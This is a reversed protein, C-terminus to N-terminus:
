DHWLGACSLLPADFLRSHADFM